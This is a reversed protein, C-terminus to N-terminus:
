HWSYFVAITTYSTYSLSLTLLRLGLSLPSLLREVLASVPSVPPLVPVLLDLSGQLPFVSNGWHTSSPVHSECLQAHLAHYLNLPRSWSPHINSWLVCWIWHNVVAFPPLHHCVAAFSLLICFFKQIEILCFLSPTQRVVAVSPSPPHRHVIILLAPNVRELALQLHIYFFLFHILSSLERRKPEEYKNSTRICHILPFFFSYSLDCISVLYVVCLM